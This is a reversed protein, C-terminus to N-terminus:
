PVGMKLCAPATAGGDPTEDGLYTFALPLQSEGGIPDRAFITAAGAGPPLVGTIRNSNVVDLCGLPTRPGDPAGFEITTGDTGDQKTPRFNKGAILVPINGALPGMTPSVALVIPKGVFEFTGAAVERAGSRVALPVVGPEHVPTRGKLQQPSLFLGGGPELPVGDVLVQTGVVFHDGTVVVDTGGTAPGQRPAADTAVPPLAVVVKSEAGAVNGVGDRAEVHVTLLEAQRDKPAVFVFRCTAAEVGPDVACMGSVEYDIGDFVSWTMSKIRGPVDDARFAVPVEAGANVVTGDAPELVSVKPPTADHGLSTFGNARIGVSGRPDRVQVDYPGEDLGKPLEAALESTSLWTLKDVAFRAGVGSSPSLVASFAGLQTVASRGATDIDYAPRFPGGEIVIEIDADNFAQAPRIAAVVVPPENSSSCAVAFLSAVGLAAGAFLRMSHM